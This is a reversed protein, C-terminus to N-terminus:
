LSVTSILSKLQYSRKTFVVFKEFSSFRFITNVLYMTIVATGYVNTLSCKSLAFLELLM